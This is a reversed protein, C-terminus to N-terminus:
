QVRVLVSSLYLGEPMAAPHPHDAPQHTTAVVYARRQLQGAAAALVEKLDDAGIVSSCSAVKLWGGPALIHMAEACLSEYKKCARHKAKANPALKPPDLSILDFREGRKRADQLYAEAKAQVFTLKDVIGNLEANVAAAALAPASSDVVVVETAGGRAAHLAFGGTFSYADLVRKGNAMSGFLARNDRQDVYHGTKQLTRPAVRYRIGRELVDIEEPLSGSATWSEVPFGEKAATRKDTQAWIAQPKLTADVAELITHRHAYSAATTFHVVVVTDYVDVILGPTSDGEGNLLRFANTDRSPLGLSKRHFLADSLRRHWFDDPLSAKPWGGPWNPGIGLTRVRLVSKSSWLGYDIVEGKADCIRVVDGDNPEGTVKGITPLLVWPHGHWVPRAKKPKLFISPGQYAPM